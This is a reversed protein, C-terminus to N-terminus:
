FKWSYSFTPIIPIIGLAMGKVKNESNTEVTGFIPNLRNYANYVSINLTRIHGSRLKRHWNFGLDLRHYDPLHYSNPMDYVYDIVDDDGWIVASAGTIRQGTHYTWNAYLEFKANFRYTANLSLKHLNDNRDPFWTYYYSPYLRESRSLTYYIAAFLHTDSYEVSLEAGYARGKGELYDSEWADLAPLFTNLGNYEYLHTLSKYFTELDFKWNKNPRFDCGLVFQDSHMPQVRSTSPMWMSTPLDIYCASVLHAFQNMAAYSAKLNFKGGIALKAAVRPELRNYVRGSVFFLADRLGINVDLCDWFNMEDELYIGMEGGAYSLSSNVNEKAVTRGNAKVLLDMYRYPDYFHAIGGIGCRIRHQFGFEKFWDSDFGLDHIRTFNREELDLTTTMRSGDELLEKELMDMGSFIDSSYNTYYLKSEMSWGQEEWYRNWKLSALTNGWKIHSSLSSQEYTGNELTEESKMKASLLDQGYYASFSLKSAPGLLHVIKLNFDGFDYHTASVVDESLPNRSLIIPTALAKVIDLWTRRVGFNISTKNKILPGEIQFRGDILGISATGTWKTFNGDKVSVDVVSSLRGGYRAPFGGKYFDVEDIVDTNFSSFLGIVHSVQYLPVGDLLFLNDSGDGGRVFLGSTLETGSAVGPLIQLTKVLDPSGLLAFGRKLQRSDLRQISTQTRAERKEKDTRIIAANLTDIQENEQAQAFIALTVALGLLLLKKM